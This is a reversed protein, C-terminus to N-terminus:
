FSEENGIPSLEYLFGEGIYNEKKNHISITITRLTFSTRSKFRLRECPWGLETEIYQKAKGLFWKYIAEATNHSCPLEALADIRSGYLVIFDGPQLGSVAWVNDAGPLADIRVVFYCKEKNAMKRTVFNFNTKLKMVSYNIAINPAKEPAQVVPPEIPREVATQTATTCSVFITLLLLIILRKM